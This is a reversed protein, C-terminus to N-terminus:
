EGEENPMGEQTLALFVDELRTRQYAVKLMVPVGVLRVRGEHLICIHDCLADAEELYHTTLLITVGEKKLAKIEAWLQSRVQPDLGTTPEDLILFRPYHMLARAIIVRQKYGGSLKPIEENRYATLDYREMLADARKQATLLSMGYFRGAFLLQQEVTLWTIVQVKQPCFGLMHRYGLINEYISIGDCLVTGSTTPHVAALISSLTTKGAGNAGLLGFAEGQFIDFSVNKLVEKGGSKSCYRKSLARLSLLPQVMNTM